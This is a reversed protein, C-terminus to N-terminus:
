KQALLPLTVTVATGHPAVPTLVWTGGADALRERMSMMGFGQAPPHAPDLGIGNDAVRMTLQARAIGVKVTVETAAAHRVINSLAEQLARYLTLVQAEDIAVDGLTDVGISTCAIGTDRSFHRLKWELTAQLGLELQFPRLEDILQRASLITGDLNDLAAGVWGNLRAQPAGTQAHLTAVDMRLALLNQGLTNHIELAVRRREKERDRFQHALLAHLKRESVRLAQEANECRFIRQVLEKNVETQELVLRAAVMEVEEDFANNRTMNTPTSM